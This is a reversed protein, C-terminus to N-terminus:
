RCHVFNRQCARYRNRRKIKANQADIVAQEQQRKKEEEQERDIKEQQERELKKQHEEQAAIKGKERAYGKQEEVDIQSSFRSDCYECLFGGDSLPTLEGGCNPCKLKIIESM